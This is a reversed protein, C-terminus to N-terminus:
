LEKDKIDKIANNELVQKQSKDKIHKQEYVTQCSYPLIFNNGVLSLIIKDGQTSNNFYQKYHKHAFYFAMTATLIATCSLPSSLDNNLCIGALSQPFSALALIISKSENPSSYLFYSAYQDIFRRNSYLIIYHEEHSDLDKKNGFLKARVPEYCDYYYAKLFKKSVKDNDRTIMGLSFKPEITSWIDDDKDLIENIRKRTKLLNVINSM